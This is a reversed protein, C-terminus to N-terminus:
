YFQYSINHNNKFVIVFLNKAADIQLYNTKRSYEGFYRFYIETRPRNKIPRYVM